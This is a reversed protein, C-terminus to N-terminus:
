FRRRVPTPRRWPWHRGAVVELIAAAAAPEANVRGPSRSRPMVTPASAAAVADAAAQGGCSGPRRRRAARNTADM